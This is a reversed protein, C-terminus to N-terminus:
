TPTGGSPGLFATNHGKRRISAGYVYTVRPQVSRHASGRQSVQLLPQRRSTAMQGVQPGYSITLESGAPVAGVTRLVVRGDVEFRRFCAAHTAVRQSAPREPLSWSLSLPLCCREQRGGHRARRQKLRTRSAPAAGVQATADSRLACCWACVEHLECGHAAHVTGRSTLSLCCHEISCGCTVSHMIVEALPVALVDCLVPHAVDAGERFYCDRDCEPHHACTSAGHQMADQPGGDAYPSVQHVTRQALLLRDCDLM